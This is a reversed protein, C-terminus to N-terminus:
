REEHKDVIKLNHIGLKEEIEKITMETEKDYLELCELNVLYVAGICKSAYKKTILAKDEVDDIYLVRYKADDTFQRELFSINDDYAYHIVWDLELKNFNDVFWTTNTSYQRGWDTVRVIDGAKIMEKNEKLYEKPTIEKNQHAKYYEADDYSGGCRSLKNENDVFLGLPFNFNGHTTPVNGTLRWRIRERKMKTLVKELTEEDEIWMKFPRIM